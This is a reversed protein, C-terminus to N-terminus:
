CEQTSVDLCLTIGGQYSWSNLISGAHPFRGLFVGDILDLCHLSFQNSKGSSVVLAGATYCRHM